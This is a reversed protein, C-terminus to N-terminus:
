FAGDAGPASLLANLCAPSKGHAAPTVGAVLRRAPTDDTLSKIWLDSWQEKSDYAPDTVSFMAWKGALSASILIAFISLRPITKVLDSSHRHLSTLSGIGM